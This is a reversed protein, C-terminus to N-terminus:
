LAALERLALGTERHLHEDKLHVYAVSSLVQSGDPWRVSGTGDKNLGYDTLTKGDQPILVSLRNLVRSGLYFEFIGKEPDIALHNGTFGSLGIASDSMFAPTESYYQDPHRVYCLCGLYQTYGGGPLPRGVHNEAMLALSAPSIVRYSLVGRCLKAMDGATSFLGAHGPCDDGKLNLVRAKPDHPTGPLIGDRLIYRDKEIRHERDTSVCLGRLSDPVRCFTNKMGLPELIERRLLEMYSLGSAGELVYKIVMAHIDSYARPGNESPRCNYLVRLGSSRDPQADIREPTQLSREFWATQRVTLEDLFAFMPAYRTVPADLDVLHKEHLRMLLLGTFLKTLSALDFIHEPTIPTEKEDATGGLVFRSLGATGFGVSM